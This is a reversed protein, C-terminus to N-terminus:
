PELTKRQDGQREERKRVEERPFAAGFESKNKTKAELGSKAKSQNPPTDTLPSVMITVAVLQFRQLEIDHIKM